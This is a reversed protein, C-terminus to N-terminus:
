KKRYRNRAERNNFLQWIFCSSTAFNVLPDNCVYVPSRLNPAMTKLKTKDRVRHYVRRSVNLSVATKLHKKSVLKAFRGPRNYQENKWPCHRYRDIFVISFFCIEHCNATVNLHTDKGIHAPLKAM